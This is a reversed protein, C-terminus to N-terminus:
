LYTQWFDPRYTYWTYHASITDGVLINMVIKVRILFLLGDFAADNSVQFAAM